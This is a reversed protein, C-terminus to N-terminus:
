QVVVKKTIVENNITGSVFYVGKSLSQGNGPQLLNTEHLSGVHVQYNNEKTIEIKQILQGLENIINFTGEHSSSITFNGDNPNPYVDIKFDFAIETEDQTKMGSLPTTISCNIGYASWSVGNDKSYRVQVQYTKGFQIGGVNSMRFKNETRTYVKDYGTGTVRIEYRNVGPVANYTIIDTLATITKGCDAEILRTTSPMTINCTKGYASWGSGKNYRIRVTYTEGYQLGAYINLKFKTSGASREIANSYAGPGEILVEYTTAGNIPTFSVLDEVSSFTRGCDTAILRTSESTVECAPGWASWTNGGNTSHAVKITYTTGFQIGSFRSLQVIRSTGRNQEVAYGNPGEVLVKYANALGVPSYKLQFDNSEVAMGCHADILRTTTPTTIECPEGFLSWEDNVRVRISVNYTKGFEINAFSFWSMRMTNKPHNFNEKTQSFGNPGEVKIEYNTAGDIPVYSLIQEINNLTIGCDAAILKTCNQIEAVVATRTSSCSGNVAEAWYTTTESINPTTWTSGSGVLNGGTIADYWNIIGNSPTASITLDGTGCRSAANTSTISTPSDIILNLTVISDCGFRNTLTDYYTGSSTLTTNKWNFSNCASINLTASNNNINIVKNSTRTNGYEDIFSATYETTQAPFALINLGTTASLSDTPSWSISPEDVTIGFGYAENPTSPFFYRNTLFNSAYGNFEIVTNNGTVNNSANFSVFNDTVFGVWYTGPNIAGESIPFYNLGAKLSSKPSTEEILTGYNGADVSYLALKVNTTTPPALSLSLWLKATTTSESIVVKTFWKINNSVGFTTNLNIPTQLWKNNIPHGNILISTSLDTTDGKCINTNTSTTNFEFSYTKMNLSNSNVENTMIGDGTTSFSLRVVDNNQLTNTQFIPANTGVINGNIKWKYTPTDGTNTTIANFTITAGDPVYNDADNSYISASPLLLLSKGVTFEKLSSLSNFTIVESTSNASIASIPSNWESGINKERQSLLVLGPSSEEITTIDSPSINIKATLNLNSTTTGFNNVIWYKNNYVSIDSTLQNGIPLGDLKSVVINGSGITNGFNLTVDTGAFSYDTEVSPNVVTFSVGNSVNAQSSVWSAGLVSLNNGSVNDFAIGNPISENFQFYNLLNTAGNPLTLHMNERIQDRTRATNWFRVEDIEGNFRYEARGGVVFNNSPLSPPLFYSGIFNGDVYIYTNSNDISMAIHYWKELDFYHTTSQRNAGGYNVLLQRSQNIVFGYGDNYGGNHLIQTEGNPNATVKVWAELTVNVKKTSLVANTKSFNSGDFKLAKGRREALETKIFNLTIPYQVSSFDNNITINFTYTGQELNSPIPISLPSTTFDENLVSVFGTMMNPSVTEISYKTPNCNASSYTIEFSNSTSQVMYMQNLGDLSVEKVTSVPIIKNIPYQGVSLHVINGGSGSMADSKQRIYITTPNIIGASPVLNLTSSFGNGTTTSVEFGAPATVLLDSTLDSASVTYNQEDSSTGLCSIFETFNESSVSIPAYTNSVVFESIFDNNEFTVLGSSSVASTAGSVVDWSGGSNITRQNLKVQNPNIEDQSVIKGSGLTVIAQMNLNTKNSCYNDVVWYYDDFVYSSVVQTGTPIGELRSVVLQGTGPSNGFNLTLNTGSFNINSSTSPNTITFSVGKSVNAGSSLWTANKVKAIACGVADILLNQPSFENFQFYNILNPAGESLILHLNERIQTQTLTVDWFRFEDIEGSFFTGTNGGIILKGKPTIPLGTISGALEGNVYVQGNSNDIVMAIHNWSNLNLNVSTSVININNYNIKLNGNNDISLGYGSTTSGHNFISATTSPFANVKVWTEITLNNTKTSLVNITEVYQNNGSFALAKGRTSSINIAPTNSQAEFAGADVSTNFIRPNGDIDSALGNLLSNDGIDLASSCNKLRLDTESIFPSVFSVVNNVGIFNSTITDILSNTLNISITGSGFDDYNRFVNLGNDYIICNKFNMSTVSSSAYSAFCTGFTPTNTNNKFFSCNLFDSISSGGQNSSSRIAGAFGAAFNNYFLCNKFSPSSQGNYEGDNFIAGGSGGANIAKNNSFKCNVFQPSSLGSINDVNGVGWNFIAGGNGATCSNDNFECNTFIPQCNGDYSGENLLAGGSGASNSIFKTNSIQALCEGGEYANNVLGGGLGNPSNNFSLICNIITMNAKGKGGGHNYIGAGAYAFNKTILCNALVPESSHTDGSGQSFVGAGWGSYTDPNNNGGKIVFGDLRTTNPSFSFKVVTFSNEDNNTFDIDNGLLDGSLISSNTSHILNMDRQSLLSETGVFGGYIKVGNPIVFSKDREENNNTIYTGKKVWIEQVNYMLANRLAIQLDRIANNWSTGSNNGSATPDVYWRSSSVLPNVIISPICGDSALLSSRTTNITAQMRQVQGATFMNMCDQNSYDMFNMFMEGNSDTGCSSNPRSPFTPCGSHPGESPPTDDVYDTWCTIYEFPGWPHALNLWHGVEHTVTRGGNYAPLNSPNIGFANCQIVVGDWEPVYSMESIRSSWGIVDNSPTPNFTWINLYKTPDWNDRGGKESSKIEENDEISFMSQGGITRTIGNTAYGDPDRSALCFEIRSDGRLDYFPHGPLLSDANLARFDKNLIDIQQQIQAVSINSGTGIPEGNHIVHVVVPITIIAPEGINKNLSQMEIWHQIQQEIQIVKKDLGEMKPLKPSGCPQQAFFNFSTFIILVFLSFKNKINM